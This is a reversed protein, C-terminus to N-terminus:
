VALRCCTAYLEEAKSLLELERRGKLRDLKQVDKVASPMSLTEERGHKYNDNIVQIEGFIKAEFEGSHVPVDFSTAYKRNIASVVQGFDSIVLEFKVFVVRDAVPLVDSYFEIYARLAMVPTIDPYMVLFSKMADIPQRILVCVPIGREVGRLVQAQAHLHHATKIPVSQAKAFAVVAFTNASRPYGEIVLQTDKQVLLQRHASLRFIPFFLGSNRALWCRFRYRARM